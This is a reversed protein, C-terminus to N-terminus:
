RRRQLNNGYPAARLSSRFAHQLNKQQSLRFNLLFISKSSLKILFNNTFGPKMNSFQPYKGPMAGAGSAVHDFELTVFVYPHPYSSIM